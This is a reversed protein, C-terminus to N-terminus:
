VPCSQEKEIKFDILIDEPRLRRTRRLSGNNSRRKRFNWVTPRGELGSDRIINEVRRRVSRHINKTM